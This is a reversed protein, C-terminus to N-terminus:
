LAPWFKMVAALVLLSYIGAGLDDLVIGIGEPLRELARV